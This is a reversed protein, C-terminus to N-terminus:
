YLSIERPLETYEVDGWCVVDGAATVACSRFESSSIAIFPGPPPQTLQDEYPSPRPAEGGKPDRTSPWAWCAAEGAASVACAHQFGVAIATYHGTSPVPDIPAYGWDLCLVRGTAALTCIRGGGVDVATYPGGVADPERHALSCFLEGLESLGCMGWDGVAISAYPGPPPEWESLPGGGWCSVEGVDTLACTTHSSDAWNWKTHIATYRGEPTRDYIAGWCVVEGVDTLACTHQEGASIAAYRGTPVSAQGHNNWGWCIAEADETLACTHNRGDSVSVYPGPPPDPPPLVNRQSGWCVAKGADTLACGYGSGNSIAIYRSPAPDPPRM